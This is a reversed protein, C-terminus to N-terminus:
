QFFALGVQTECSVQKGLQFKGDVQFMKDYKAGLGRCCCRQNELQQLVMRESSKPLKARLGSFDVESGAARASSSSPLQARM